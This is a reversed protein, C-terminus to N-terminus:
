KVEITKKISKLGMKKDIMQTHTHIHYHHRRYHRQKRKKEKNVQFKNIISTDHIM